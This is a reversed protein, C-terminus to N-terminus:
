KIYNCLLNYYHLELIKFNLYKVEEQTYNKGYVALCIEYEKRLIIKSNNM